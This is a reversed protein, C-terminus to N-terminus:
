RSNSEDHRDARIDTLGYKQGCPVVRSGGLPNDNFKIDSYQEFFQGSFEINM